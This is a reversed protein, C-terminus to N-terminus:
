QVYPGHQRPLTSLGREALGRKFNFPTAKSSVAFPLKSCFFMRSSKEGYKLFQSRELTDVCVGVWGKLLDLLCQPPPAQLTDPHFLSPPPILSQRLICHIKESMGEVGPKERWGEGRLKQQERSARTLIPM